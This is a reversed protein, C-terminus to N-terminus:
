GETRRSTASRSFSESSATAVSEATLSRSNVMTPQSALFKMMHSYTDDNSTIHVNAMMYTTVLGYGLTYIQRCVKNGAWIVGLVTLIISPDFGLSIGMMNYLLMLAKILPNYQGGLLPM